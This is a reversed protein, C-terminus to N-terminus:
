KFFSAYREPDFGRARVDRFVKPWNRKHTAGSMAYVVYHTGNKTIAVIKHGRLRHLSCVRSTKIPAGDLFMKHGYAEGALRLDYRDAITVDDHRMIAWLIAREFEKDEGEKFIPEWNKLEVVRGSAVM